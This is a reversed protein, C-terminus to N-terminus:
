NAPRCSHQEQSLHHFQYHPSSLVGIKEKYAEEVCATERM